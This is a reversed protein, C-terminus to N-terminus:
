HLTVEDLDGSTKDTFAVHVSGDRHVHASLSVKSDSTLKTLRLQFDVISQLALEVNNLIIFVKKSYILIEVFILFNFFINMIGMGAHVFIWFSTM